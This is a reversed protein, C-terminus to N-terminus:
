LAPQIPHRVQRTPRSSPPGQRGHGHLMFKFATGCIPSHETCLLVGSDSLKGAPMCAAALSRVPKAAGSMRARTNLAAAPMTRGSFFNLLMRLLMLSLPAGWM